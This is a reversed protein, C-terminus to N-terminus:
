QYYGQGQPSQQQYQLPPQQPYQEQPPYGSTDPDVEEVTTLHFFKMEFRKVGETFAKGSSKGSRDNDAGVFGFSMSYGTHADVVMMTGRCITRTYFGGKGNPVEREDLSVISPLLALGIRPLVERLRANVLEYSVFNYRQEQNQGDKYLVGIESIVTLQKKILESRLAMESVGTRQPNGPQAQPPQTPRTPPTGSPGPVPSAQETM